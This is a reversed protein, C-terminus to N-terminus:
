ACNCYICLPYTVRDYQGDFSPLFSSSTSSHEATILDDTNDNIDKAIRKMEKDSIPAGYGITKDITHRRTIRSKANHKNGDCKSFDLTLEYPLEITNLTHAITRADFSEVNKDDIQVIKANSRLGYRTYQISSNDKLKHIYTGNNSHYKLKLNKLRMKITIKRESEICDDCVSSLCKKNFDYREQSSHTSCVYEKCKFCIIPRNLIKGFIEGCIYCEHKNRSPTFPSSVNENMSNSNLEECGSAM